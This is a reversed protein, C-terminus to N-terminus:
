NSGSSGVETITISTILGSNKDKNCVVSYRKGTGVTVQQEADASLSVDGDVTIKRTDDSEMLNHNFVTKLLSNVRSGAVSTGEYNEYTNNFSNVELDSLAQEGQQMQDNGMGVVYVGLSIIIIVILVAAAILLAKTANEM